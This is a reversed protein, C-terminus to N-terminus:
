INEYHNNKQQKVEELKNVIMNILSLKTQYFELMANIVRDDNPNAALDDQLSKYLKEFEELETQMMTQEEDSIYGESNLEDWQTLGTKISTTYYFEVEKYETSISALTVESPKNANLILGQSNPSFYIFAQNTALFVFVVAAAVKLVVNLSIKRKKHQTKLKAEFREFHGDIPENDNLAELNNQILEEIYDKNEM